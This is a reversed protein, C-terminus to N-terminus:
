GSAYKVGSLVVYELANDEEQADLDFPLWEISEYTFSMERPSGGERDLLTITLSKGPASRLYADLSDRGAVHPAGIWVRDRQFIDSWVAMVPAAPLTSAKATLTFRYRKYVQIPSARM